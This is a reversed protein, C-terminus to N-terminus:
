HCPHRLEPSPNPHPTRESHGPWLPVTPVSHCSPIRNKSQQPRPRTRGMKGLHNTTYTVNPKVGTSVLRGTPHHYRSYLPHPNPNNHSRMPSEMITPGSNSQKSCFLSHSLWRMYETYHVKFSRRLAATRQHYSKLWKPGLIYLKM